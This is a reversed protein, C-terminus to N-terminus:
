CCTWISFCSVHVVTEMNRPKGSPSSSKYNFEIDVVDDGSKGVGHVSVHQTVTIGEVSDSPLQSSSSSLSENSAHSGDSRRLTWVGRDPRDKNRTRKEQKENIPGFGHLDSGVVKDDTVRKSNCDSNCAAQSGSTPSDKLISRINTPRPPRKDKDLNLFQVQQESHADKSSLITRIM